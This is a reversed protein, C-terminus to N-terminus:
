RHEMCSVTEKYFVDLLGHSDKDWPKHKGSYHIIVSHSRVWDLGFNEEVSTHIRYLVETM